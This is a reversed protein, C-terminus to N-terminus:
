LRLLESIIDTQDVQGCGSDVQSVSSILNSCSAEHM